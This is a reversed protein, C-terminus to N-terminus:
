LIRFPRRGTTMGLRASLDPLLHNLALNGTTISVWFNPELIEMLILVQITSYEYEGNDDLHCKGDNPEVIGGLKGDGAYHFESDTSFLL